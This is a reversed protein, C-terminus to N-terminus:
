KSEWSEHKEWAAILWAHVAQGQNIFMCRDAM